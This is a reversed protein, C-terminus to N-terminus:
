KTLKQKSFFLNQPRFPPPPYQLPPTLDPTYPVEIRGHTINYLCFPTGTSPTVRRCYTSWMRVLRGPVLMVTTTSPMSCYKLDALKYRDYHNFNNLTESISIFRLGNRGKSNVSQRYLLMFFIVYRFHAYNHCLRV